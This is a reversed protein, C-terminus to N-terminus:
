LYRLWGQYYWFNSSLITTHDPICVTEQAPIDEDEEPQKRQFNWHSLLSQAQTQQLAGKKALLKGFLFFPHVIVVAGVPRRVASEALLATAVKKPSM